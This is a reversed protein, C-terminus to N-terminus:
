QEACIELAPQASGRWEGEIGFSVCRVVGFPLYVTEGVELKLQPLIQVPKLLRVKILVEDYPTQAKMPYWPKFAKTRQEGAFAIGVDHFGGSVIKISGEEMLERADSVRFTLERKDTGRFNRGEFQFDKV